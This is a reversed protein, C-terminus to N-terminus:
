CTRKGRTGRHPARDHRDGNKGLRGFPPEYLGKFDLQTETATIPYLSLEAKMLPFLRPMTAAEWELQLRTVPRSM